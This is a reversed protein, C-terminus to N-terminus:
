QHRNPPGENRASGSSHRRIPASQAPLARLAAPRRARRPRAPGDPDLSLNHLAAGPVSRSASALPSACNTSAVRPDSPRVPSLALATLPIKSCFCCQSCGCRARSPKLGRSFKLVVHTPALEPAVAAVPAVPAVCHAHPRLGAPLRGEAVGIAIRKGSSGSGLGSTSGTDSGPGAHRKNLRKNSSCTQTNAHEHCSAIGM